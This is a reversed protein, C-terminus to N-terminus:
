EVLWRSLLDIQVELVSTGYLHSFRIDGFFSYMQGYSGIDVFICLM